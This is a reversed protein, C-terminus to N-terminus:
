QITDSVIHAPDGNQQFWWGNEIDAFLIEADPIIYKKLIKEYLKVDLEDEFVM